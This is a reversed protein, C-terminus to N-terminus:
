ALQAGSLNALQPSLDLLSGGDSGEGASLVFGDRFARGRKLRNAEAAAAAAQRSAKNKEAEALRLAKEKDRKEKRRARAQETTYCRAAAKLLSRLRAVETQANELDKYAEPDRLAGQLPDVERITRAAARLSSEGSGM